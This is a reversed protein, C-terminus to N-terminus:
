HRVVRILKFSLLLWMHMVFGNSYGVPTNVLSFLIGFVIFPVWLRYRTDVGMRVRRYVLSALWGWVGALFIGFYHYDVFLTGYASPLFGYTDLNLLYDFNKAVGAGDVRRMIASFIDVGYVGFMADGNYDAFLSNSMVIGQILYWVFVFILYTTAPGVLDLMLDAYPGSFTVGWQSAVIHLMQEPGGVGLARVIFVNIFYNVAVVGLVIGTIRVILPLKAYQRLGLTNKFKTLSNRNNVTKADTSKEIKKNNKGGTSGQRMRFSIVVVVITNFLQARGGLALAALIGPLLGYLFLPVLQPKREFILQRATYIYGVPYTMFGIKFYISSGSLGGKLLAQARDSRESYASGLDLNGLLVIELIFATCAIGAVVKLLRDVRKFNLKFPHEPHRQKVPFTKLLAGFCFAAIFLALVVFGELKFSRHTLQFPLIYFAAFAGFWVFLMITAPHHRM